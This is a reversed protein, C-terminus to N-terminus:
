QANRLLETVTITADPNHRADTTAVLVRLARLIIETTKLKDEDLAQRASAILHAAETRDEPTFALIMEAVPQPEPFPTQEPTPEDHGQPTPDNHNHNEQTPQPTPHPEQQPPTFTTNPDPHLHEPTPNPESLALILDDTEEDTFGTGHTTDLDSLLQALLQDDYTAEDSTKNDALLIKKAATDDVDIFTAAVQTWGLQHAAALTHNGALVHGTSKQVVLPRYQGNHELSQAILDTNGQRANDPHPSLTTIDVTKTTTPLINTTM